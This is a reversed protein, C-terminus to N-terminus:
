VTNETGVARTRGRIQQKKGSVKETAMMAMDCGMLTM